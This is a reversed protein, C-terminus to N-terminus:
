CHELYIYKVAHMNRNMIKIAFIIKNLITTGVFCVFLFSFADLIFSYDFNRGLILNVLHHLNGM